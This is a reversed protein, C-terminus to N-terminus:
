FPFYSKQYWLVLRYRYLSGGCAPLPLNIKRRAGVGTHVRAARMGSSMLRVVALLLRAEREEYRLWDLHGPQVALGPGLERM